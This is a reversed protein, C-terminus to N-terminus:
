YTNVLHEPDSLVGPVYMSGTLPVLIEKGKNDATFRSLCEGSEQFRFIFNFHQFKYNLQSKLAIFQYFKREFGIGIDLIQYQFRFFIFDGM